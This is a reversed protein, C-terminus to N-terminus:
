AALTYLFLSEHPFQLPGHTYLGAMDMLYVMLNDVDDGEETKLVKLDYERSGL